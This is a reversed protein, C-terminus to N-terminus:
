RDGHAAPALGACLLFAAFILRSVIGIRGNMVKDAARPLLIGGRVM